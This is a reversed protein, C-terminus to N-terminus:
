RDTFRETYDRARDVTARIGDKGRQLTDRTISLAPIYFAENECEDVWPKDPWEHVRTAGGPLARPLYGCSRVFGSAWKRLLPSKNRGFGKRGDATEEWIQVLPTPGLLMQNWNEGAILSEGGRRRIDRVWRRVGHIQNWTPDNYFM